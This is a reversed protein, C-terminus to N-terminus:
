RLWPPSAVSPSSKDTRRLVTFCMSRYAFGKRTCESLLLKSSNSFSPKLLDNNEFIQVFLCPLTVIDKQLPFDVDM